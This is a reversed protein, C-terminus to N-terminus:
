SSISLGCLQRSLCLHHQLLGLQTPHSCASPPPTSLYFLACSIPDKNDRPAISQQLFSAWAARVSRAKTSVCRLAATRIIVCGSKSSSTAAMRDMIRSHSCCARAAFGVLLGNKQQWLYFRFSHESWQLPISLRFCSNAVFEPADREIWQLAGYVM